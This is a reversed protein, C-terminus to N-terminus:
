TRGYRKPCIKKALRGLRTRPDPGTRRLFHLVASSAGYLALNFSHLVITLGWGTEKPATRRVKLFMGESRGLRLPRAFLFFHFKAPFHSRLSLIVASISPEFHFAASALGPGNDRQIGDAARAVGRDPLQFGREFAPQAPRRAIRRCFFPPSQDTKVM